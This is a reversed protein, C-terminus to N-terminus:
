KAEMMTAIQNNKDNVTNPTALAEGFARSPFAGTLKRPLRKESFSPM